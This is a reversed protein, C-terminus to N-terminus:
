SAKPAQSPVQVGVAANAPSTSATSAESPGERKDPNPPPAADVDVAEVPADRLEYPSFLDPEEDVEFDDAEDFTEEGEAAAHRSMEERISRRIIEVLPEPRKFPYPLSIPTPDPIERGFEDYRAM